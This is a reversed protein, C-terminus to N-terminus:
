PYLYRSRSVTPRSIRPIGCITTAIPVSMQMNLGSVKATNFPVRFREEDFTLTEHRKLKYWEASRRTSQSSGELAEIDGADQDRSYPRSSAAVRVNERAGCAM